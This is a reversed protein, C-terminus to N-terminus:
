CGKREYLCYNLHCISPAYGESLRYDGRARDRRLVLRRPKVVVDVVVTGVPM